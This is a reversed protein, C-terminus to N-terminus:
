MSELRRLHKQVRIEAQKRRQQDVRERYEGPTEAIRNKAQRTRQQKLRSEREKPTEAARM